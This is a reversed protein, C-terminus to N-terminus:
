NKKEPAAPKGKDLANAPAANRNIIEVGVSGSVEGTTDSAPPAESPAPQKAADLNIREPGLELSPRSSRRASSVNPKKSFLNMVRGMFSTSPMNELDAQARALAQQNVEPIPLNLDELKKEQM